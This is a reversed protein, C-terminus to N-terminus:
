EVDDDGVSCDRCLYRIKPYYEDDTSVDIAKMLEQPARQGCHICRQIPPKAGIDQACPDCYEGGRFGIHVGCQSCARPDEAPDRRESGSM